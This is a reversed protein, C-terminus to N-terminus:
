LLGSDSFNPWTFRYHIKNVSQMSYITALNVPKYPSSMYWTYCKSVILNQNHFVKQLKIKTGMKTGM